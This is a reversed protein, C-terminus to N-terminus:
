PQFSRRSSVTPRHGGRAKGARPSAPPAEASGQVTVSIPNGGSLSELVQEDTRLRGGQRREEVLTSTSATGQREARASARCLALVLGACALWIFALVVLM